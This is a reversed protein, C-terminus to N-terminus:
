ADVTLTSQYGDGIQGARDIIRVIVKHSGATAQWEHEWLAAVGRFPFAFGESIQLAQAISPHQKILDELAVLRTTTPESGDISIEVHDIGATGSLASGCLTLVGAAGVSQRYTGFYLSNPVIVGDDNAIGLEQYQGFEEDSATAEIRVLWKTNKFGFRDPLLLRAPFGFEPRLPEGGFRLAILPEFREGSTPADYLDALRLNNYFGDAGYFRIRRAQSRDIGARDLLVRVPFGSWVGTGQPGLVCQMTKLVTVQQEAELAALGLELPTAVLGDVTLRYSSADLEPQQWGDVTGNGGFLEPFAEVPTLFPLCSGADMPPAGADAAAGGADADRAADDIAGADTAAVPPLRAGADQGDNSDRDPSECALAPGLCLVAAGAKAGRLVFVRRSLAISATGARM